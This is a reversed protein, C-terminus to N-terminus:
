AREYLAAAAAGAALLAQVYHVIPAVHWVPQDAYAGQRCAAGSLGTLMAHHPPLESWVGSTGFPPTWLHVLGPRAATLREGELALAALAAPGHDVVLVDAAALLRDFRGRDDPAALDLPLIAKNRNWALYGPRGNAWDGDLPEIKLVEAGFDGLHM